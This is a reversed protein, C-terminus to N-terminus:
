IIVEIDMREEFQLIFGSQSITIGISSYELMPSEIEAIFRFKLFKSMVDHLRKALAASRQDGAYRVSLVNLPSQSLISVVM